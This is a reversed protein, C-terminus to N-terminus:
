TKPSTWCTSGPSQHSPEPGCRSRHHGTIAFPIGPTGTIGLVAVGTGATASQLRLMSAAFIVGDLVDLDHVDHMGKM